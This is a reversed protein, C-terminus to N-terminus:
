EDNAAPETSPAGKFKHDVLQKAVGLIKAAIDVTQDRTLSNAVRVAIPKGDQGAFEHKKPAELGLHDALMKLAAVKSQLKVSRMVGRETTQERISEIARRAHEPMESLKRLRFGGEGSEEFVEGLDAYAINRIEELVRDASIETRRRRARLAEAIETQISIKALLKAGAVNAAKSSYGARIAAQTANLDIIYEEVFRRQRATLKGAKTRAAKESTM